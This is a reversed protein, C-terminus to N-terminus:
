TTVKRYRAAIARREELAAELRGLKVRLIAAQLEDLRSNGGEIAASRALTASYTDSPQNDTTM